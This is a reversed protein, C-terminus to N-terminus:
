CSLALGPVAQHQLLFRVRDEPSARHLPSQEVCAEVLDLEALVRSDEGQDRILQAHFGPLEITPSPGTYRIECRIHGDLPLPEFLELRPIMVPWATRGSGIEPDWRDLQDHPIAQTIAHLLAPHVAGIPVQAGSPLDGSKALM